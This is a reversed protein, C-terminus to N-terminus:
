QRLPFLCGPLCFLYSLRARFFCSDTRWSPSRDCVLWTKYYGVEIEVTIKPEDLVFTLLNRDANWYGQVGAGDGNLRAAYQVSFLVRLGHALTQAPVSPRAVSRVICNCGRVVNNDNIDSDNM